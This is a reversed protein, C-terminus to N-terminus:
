SVNLNQIDIQLTRLKKEVNSLEEQIEVLRNLRNQAEDQYPKSLVKVFTDLNEIAETLDKKMAEELEYALTDAKRKVKDIVKQRRAPFTSIALYGGASCIGLALLDDLTTQLVSTLLSASLGAVGLQGFTGLIMERVEQEFSKSVANSSFNDIVQSGAQDVKKLLQDTEFNIQSSEHSLSPWRKEFSEKYLRGQQTYKSYLWNGYEELIKQVASVAPGIIDNQIRSTTPMVNKEGKFAYSAIIDFNSLQLNAEVLEIVRSKTTEILSLTQRRWSLSETVMNLAFDNVNNVIDEVAALDQKAYRYDQTVLTECASILRDAIAVPTELKLRMRDMGPITSGDLFSYLFNELEFFSIAGYHSDSTSLEENLRGVNTTAMLKAELASRASVPYLIVDETNLLRQINDKIFSMAEELEHNNQYIDAKNLVFVAKKKWQQSYRLFAIESGTLPRDASIVFLLLDARPVFEETLRQQRQLIVNTGPTDVITMEKLIPAPIYCIYQGDPHRECQQQEIDLDTYRLFTIENTTPVVGEKLYREGLLANIVTSKGSNFEGLTYELFWFKNLNLM